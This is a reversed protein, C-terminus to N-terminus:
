FHGTLTMVWVKKWISKHHKAAVGTDPPFFALLVHLSLHLSTYIQADKRTVTKDHRPLSMSYQCAKKNHRQSKLYHWLFGTQREVGCKMPNMCQTQTTDWEGNHSTAKCNHRKTNRLFFFFLRSMVDKQMEVALVFAFCSTHASGTEPSSSPPFFCPSPLFKICIAKILRAPCTTTVSDINLVPWRLGVGATEIVSVSHPQASM